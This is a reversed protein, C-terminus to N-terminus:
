DKARFYKLIVSFLKILSGNMFRELFYHKEGRRAIIARFCGRFGSGSVLWFNDDIFFFPLSQSASFPSSSNLPRTYARDHGLMMPWPLPPPRRNTIRTVPARSRHHRLLFVLPPEARSFPLGNANARFRLPRENMFEGSM